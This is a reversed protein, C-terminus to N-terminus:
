ILGEKKFNAVLEDFSHSPENQRRNAEEIDETDELMQYTLADEVISSISESSEVARLKLMKYLKDNITITTRM